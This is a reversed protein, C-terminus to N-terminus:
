LAEAYYTIKNENGMPRLSLNALFFHDYRVYPYPKVQLM